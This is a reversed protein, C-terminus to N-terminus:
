LIDLPSTLWVILKQSLMSVFVLFCKQSEFPAERAPHSTRLKFDMKKLFFLLILYLSAEGYQFINQSIGHLIEVMNLLLHLCLLKLAWCCFAVGFPPLNFFFLVFLVTTLKSAIANISIWKVIVRTCFM